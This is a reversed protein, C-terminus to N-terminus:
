VRDRNCRIHAEGKLTAVTRIDQLTTGARVDENTASTVVDKNTASTVVNRDVLACLRVVSKAYILPKERYRM